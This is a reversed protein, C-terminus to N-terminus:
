GFRQQAMQKLMSLTQSEKERHMRAKEALMAQKEAEEEM